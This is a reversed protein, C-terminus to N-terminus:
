ENITSSVQRQVNFSYFLYIFDRLVDSLSNLRCFIGSPWTHQKTLPSEDLQRRQASRLRQHSAIDSVAVENDLCRHVTVGLKYRVPYAVDLWRLDTHLLQMLGRDYKHTGLFLRAAANLMQRLRECVKTVRCTGHQLPGSLAHRFRSCTKPASRNHLLPQLCVWSTQSSFIICLISNRPM